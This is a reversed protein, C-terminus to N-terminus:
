CQPNSPSLWQGQTWGVPGAAARWDDRSLRMSVQDIGKAFGDAIQQAIRFGHHAFFGATHQSTVIMIEFIDAQSFLHNMRWALLAKGASCRHHHQSVVGWSLRGSGNRVYCGGCAMVAGGPEAVFNTGPAALFAEFEPLESPAFYRPM